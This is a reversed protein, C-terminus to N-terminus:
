EISMQAKLADIEDSLNELDEDGMFGPSKELEEIQRHLELAEEVKEDSEEIIKEIDKMPLYKIMSQLILIQEKISKAKRHCEELTQITQRVNEFHDTVEQLTDSLAKPLGLFYPIHYNSCNIRVKPKLLIEQSEKM